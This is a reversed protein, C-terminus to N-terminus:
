WDAYHTKLQVEVKDAHHELKKARNFWGRRRRKYFKLQQPHIHAYHMQYGWIASVYTEMKLVVKKRKKILRYYCKTGKAYDYKQDWVDFKDYDSPLSDPFPRSIYARGQSFFRIFSYYEMNDAAITRSVYIANTDIPFPQLLQEGFCKSQRDIRKGMKYRNPSATCASLLVVILLMLFVQVKM